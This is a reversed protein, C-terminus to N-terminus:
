GVHKFGAPPTLSTKAVNEASRPLWDLDSEAHQYGKPLDSSHVVVVLPLYSQADVWLDVHLKQGAPLMAAKASYTLHVTDHGDLQEHGVVTVDNHALADRIKAPTDFLESGPKLPFGGATEEVWWSRSPFDVLTSTTGHGPWFIASAPGGSPAHVLDVFQGTRQDTWREEKPNNGYQHTTHVIATNADIAATVRSRIYAVTDFRHSTDPRSPEATTRTAEPARAPGGATALGVAASTAVVGSVVLARTGNRRRRYSRLANDFLHDPLTIEAGRRQLGETLLDELQTSM